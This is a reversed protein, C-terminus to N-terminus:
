LEIERRKTFVRRKFFLAIGVSLTVLICTTPEPVTAPTIEVGVNDRWGGKAYLTGNTAEVTSGPIAIVSSSLAEIRLQDGLALNLTGGTQMATGNDNLTFDGTGLYLTDRFKIYTIRTISASTGQTLNTFQGIPNDFNISFNQAYNFYFAKKPIVIEEIQIGLPTSSDVTYINGTSVFEWKTKGNLLDTITIGINGRACTAFSALFLLIVTLTHNPKNM